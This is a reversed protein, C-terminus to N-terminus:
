VSEQSALSIHCGLFLKLFDTLRIIAQLIRLFSLQMILNAGIAHIPGLAKAAPLAGKPYAGSKSTWASCGVAKMGSEASCFWTSPGFAWCAMCLGAKCLRGVTDMAATCQWYSDSVVSLCQQMKHGLLLMYTRRCQMISTAAVRAHTHPKWCPM